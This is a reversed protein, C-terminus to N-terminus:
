RAIVDLPYVPRRVNQFPLTSRRPRALAGSDCVIVKAALPEYAARFHQMSKLAVVKLKEPHIGFSAFQMRDLIQLNHTTVLIDVGEVRFVSTPGFSKTLGAYMPGESLYNGDYIGLIEGTLGLPGGGLDS